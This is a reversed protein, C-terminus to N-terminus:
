RTPWRRRPGWIAWAVFALSPSAWCRRCSIARSPTPWRQIPARSRQAEAVMAVIRALMTDAGIKDARMVLSGTGNVTGGILKDGPRKPPRCPSAPSWPNTWRAKGELVTATSRSATARAVRLRDGVQVQRAPNGRGRRRGCGIRPRPRWTSCPASRAAPRSAPACSWCRAWCSWCPSSRPPRSISRSRAAWRRFGAPVPRRSPRSLSYLYAAGTGLAILSFMNLSRHVVSAWARQFFPWGAWLVVPTSLAFQIWDVRPACDAILGLGPHPRGNGPRVGAATLVLGIWFRRTMDALEHNPGGGGDGDVPELAM